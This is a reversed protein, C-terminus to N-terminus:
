VYEEEPAFAADPEAAADSESETSAAEYPARLVPDSGVVVAVCLAWELCNQWLITCEGLNHILFYVLFALPWLDCISESTEAQYVARRLGTVM